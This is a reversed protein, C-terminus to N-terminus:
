STAPVSRDTAVKNAEVGNLGAPNYPDMTLSSGRAPHLPDTTVAGATRGLAGSAVAAVTAVAGMVVLTRALEGDGFSLRVMSGRPALAISPEVTPHPYRDPPTARAAGDVALRSGGVVGTTDQAEAVCPGTTSGLVLCIEPPLRRSPTDIPVTLGEETRDGLKCNLPCAVVAAVATDVGARVGSAEAWLRPARPTVVELAM